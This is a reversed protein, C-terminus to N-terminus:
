ITWEPYNEEFEEDTINGLNKIINDIHMAWQAFLIIETGSRNDLVKLDKVNIYDSMIDAEIVEGLLTADSERYIIKDNIQPFNIKTEMLHQNISEMSETLMKGNKLMELYDM